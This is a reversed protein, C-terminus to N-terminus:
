REMNDFKTGRNRMFDILMAMQSCKLSQMIRGVKMCSYYDFLEAPEIPVHEVFILNLLAVVM